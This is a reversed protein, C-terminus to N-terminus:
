ELSDIGRQCCTREAGDAGMGFDRVLLSRLEITGVIANDVIKIREDRGDAELGCLLV